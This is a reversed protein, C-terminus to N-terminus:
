LKAALTATMTKRNMKMWRINTKIREIVREFSGKVAGLEEHQSVFGEVRKLEYPSNFKNTIGEILASLSFSNQGYEEYLMDWNEEVFDYAIRKGATNDAIASIFWTEDQSRIFSSNKSQEM